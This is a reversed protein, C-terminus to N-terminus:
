VLFDASTLGRSVIEKLNEEVATVQQEWALQSAEDDEWDVNEPTFDSCAGEELMVEEGDRLVTAGYFDCGEERWALAFTL